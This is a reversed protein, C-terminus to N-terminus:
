LTSSGIMIAELCLWFSVHYTIAPWTKPDPQPGCQELTADPCHSEDGSVGSLKAYNLLSWFRRIVSCCKLLEDVRWELTSQVAVAERHVGTQNRSNIEEKIENMDSVSRSLMSNFYRIFQIM